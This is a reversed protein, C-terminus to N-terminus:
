GKSRKVKKKSLKRELIVSLTTSPVGYPYKHIDKDYIVSNYHNEMYSIRIPAIENLVYDPLSGELHINSPAGPGSEVDWVEIPRDLLEEM